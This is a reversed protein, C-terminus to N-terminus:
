YILYITNDTWGARTNSKELEVVEAELRAGGYRSNSLWSCCLFILWVGYVSLCSCAKHPTSMSDKLRSQLTEEMFQIAADWQPKDTISRDELANHQIVRQVACVYSANVLLVWSVGTHQMLLFRNNRTIIYIINVLSDMAKENWKHRKISEDRVAEKLKDFIDDQDKGKYEAM